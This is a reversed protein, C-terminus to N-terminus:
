LMEKKQMEKKQMRQMMNNKRSHKVISAYTQKNSNNIKTTNIMEMYYLQM